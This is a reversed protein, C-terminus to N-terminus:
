TAGHMLDRRIQAELNGQIECLRRYPGDARLLEEHNGLQVIRGRELVMIRDAHIVSSLRHSIVLTTHRGKRQELAELIRRETGTDVASLADDLVLIPPDKLLARALALRQRQGGSLTVGREGVMADYGETFEVIAEHISADRAADLIADADADKRGVRLNAEISRSYLFPDQLVVGIQSRVYKRNLTNLERGDLQITGNEYEYLRLLLRILTSKGCGPPGVIALTEGAAISVSIDELVPKDPDYGFTLNEIHIRGDARGQGPPEARTEEPSDLIENVRVLSVVAKGSDTLVRGLQRIPWIIMNEYLIFAFLTGMTVSGQMFWLSGFYIVLGVQTLAILDGTAWYFGMLRVLRYNNDRFEANREGFRGIEFAQRAFARVVRIGTLNEQLVATMAAESEDTIQFIRKVRAFFWYAFVFILPLLMLSIYALDAHLWFLIPIVTLILIIARGIEVIDSSLFVRITEVDSSCRQVLDGTDASDHFSVPLHHLHSYLRDRLRRIISESAIAAWRGRLYLFFGGIATVLVISLASVILYALLPEEPDIAMALDTLGAIGKAMDEGDIVDLAYKAVLPSGFLCLSALGMVAIAAFYRLRQDRTLAWLNKRDKGIAM